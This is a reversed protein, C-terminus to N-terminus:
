LFNWVSVACFGRCGARFGPQIYSESFCLVDGQVLMGAGAWGGGVV